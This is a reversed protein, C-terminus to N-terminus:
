PQQGKLKALEALAADREARIRHGWQMAKEVEETNRHEAEDARKGESEALDALAPLLTCSDPCARTIERAKAILEDRDSM